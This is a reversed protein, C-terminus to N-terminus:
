PSATTSTPQMGFIALAVFLGAVVLGVLDTPVVSVREGRRSCIM